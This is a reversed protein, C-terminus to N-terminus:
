DCKRFSVFDALATTLGKNTKVHIRIRKTKRLGFSSFNFNTVSISNHGNNGIQPYPLLPLPSRATNFYKTTAFVCAVKLCNM